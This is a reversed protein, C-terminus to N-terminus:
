FHTLSSAGVVAISDQIRRITLADAVAENRCSIHKFSITEQETHAWGEM